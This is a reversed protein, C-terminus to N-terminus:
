NITARYGKKVIPYEDSPWIHGTLLLKLTTTNFFNYRVRDNGSPDDWTVDVYYWTGDLKVMNWAHDEEHGIIGSSAQISICPISLLDMFLQFTTTYGSCIGYGHLLFGYPTDAGESMKGDKKLAEQDYEANKIMYDHVAREKEYESMDETIIESLISVVKEYLQREQDDLLITEDKKQYAAVIRQNDFMEKATEKQQQTPETVNTTVKKTAEKTVVPTLETTVVSTVEPEAQSLFSDYFVEKIAESEDSVILCLWSGALLVEGKKAKSAELPAYGTFVSERDKLHGQLEEKAVKVEDEGELHFVAIEDAKAETSRAAAMSAITQSLGYWALLDEKHPASDDSVLSLHKTDDQAKLLETLIQEATQETEYTIQKKRCSTFLTIMFLFLLFRIAKNFNMKFGRLIFLIKIM